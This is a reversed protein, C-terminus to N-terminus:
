SGSPHRRQFCYPPPMRGEANAQRLQWCEAAPYDPGMAIFSYGHADMCTILQDVNASAGTCTRHDSLREGFTGQLADSMQQAQFVHIPPPSECAVISVVISLMTAAALAAGAGPSTRM